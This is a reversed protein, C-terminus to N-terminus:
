WFYKALVQPPGWSQGAIKTSIVIQLNSKKWDPSNGPAVQNMYTSNTILEAAATTAHLGLGSVSVITQGTVPDFFRSIIAYDQAYDKYPQDIKGNWNKAATNQRDEIWYLNTGYDGVIHFRLPALLRMSWDSNGIFILPGTRLEGLSPLLPAASPNSMDSYSFSLLKVNLRARRSDLFHTIQILATSDTLSVFPIGLPSDVPAPFAHPQTTSSAVPICVSLIESQGLMPSWFRDLPDSTRLAFYGLAGLAVITVAALAFYAKLSKHAPKVPAVVSVPAAEEEPPATETRQLENLHFEPLYSGPPLDIRLETEHRIEHYYQAIRKRIDSAASRVVPDDNTDYDPARGFVDVGLAREKPHGNEGRLVYEVLYSLLMQCRRSAKFVPDALMRELQERVLEPKIESVKTQTDFNV